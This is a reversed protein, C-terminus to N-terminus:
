FVLDNPFRQYMPYNITRCLDTHFDTPLTNDFTTDLTNSRNKKCCSLYLIYNYKIGHKLEDTIIEFLMDRHYTTPLGKRIVRYKEVAKMEGFLAKTIGDIYSKPKEFDVEESATIDMGTIDKYIKRFMKNHKMEDNRISTIIEKEEKTPAISILYNYFLEDNKEDQVAEEILKLSKKLSKMNYMNCYYPNPMQYM